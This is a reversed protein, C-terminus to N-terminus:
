KHKNLFATLKSDMVAEGGEEKEEVREESTREGVLRQEEELRRKCVGCIAGKKKNKKSVINTCGPTACQKHGNTM